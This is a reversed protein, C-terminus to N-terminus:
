FQSELFLRLTLVEIFIGLFLLPLRLGPMVGRRHSLLNPPTSYVTQRPKGLIQLGRFGNNEPTGVWIRSANLFCNFFYKCVRSSDWPWKTKCM